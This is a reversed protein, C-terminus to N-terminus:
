GARCRGVIDATNPTLLSAAPEACEVEREKRRMEAPTFLSVSRICVCVCVGRAEPAKHTTSVSPAETSCQNNLVPDATSRNHETDAGATALATM